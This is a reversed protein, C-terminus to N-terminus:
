LTKNPLLIYQVPSMQLLIDDMMCLVVIFHICFNHGSSIIVTNLAVYNECIHWFGFINYM